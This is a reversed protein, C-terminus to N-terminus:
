GGFRFLMKVGAARPILDFNSFLFALFSPIPAPQLVVTTVTMNHNDEIWMPGYTPVLLDAFIKNVEPITSRSIMQRYRMRLIIRRQFTTLGIATTASQGFNNNAFNRNINTTPDTVGDSQGTWAPPPNPPLSSFGFPATPVVGGTIISIPIGLIIAWVICGFDNCTRLDFVDHIWNNWFDTQNADYWDQKKQMISQLNAADNRQWLLAQLLNVSFDFQQVTAM